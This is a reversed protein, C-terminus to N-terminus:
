LVFFNKNKNDYLQFFTFYNSYLNFKWPANEDINEFENHNQVFLFQEDLEPQPGIFNSFGCYASCNMVTSCSVERWSEYAFQIAQLVNIKGSIQNATAFPDFLNEEIKELIFHVLKMRYRVKLNKIIDIDLPQIFPM